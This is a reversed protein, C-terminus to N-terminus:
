RGYINGPAPIRVPLSITEGSLIRRSAGTHLTGFVHEAYLRGGGVGAVSAYNNGAALGRGAVAGYFDAPDRSAYGAASSALLAAGGRINAARNTKLEWEPIGTLRSAEGLTDSFPNQVLAMIGYSGWGHPAGREYENAEPPPMEWRTNVYGMAMLLETPIGYEEAATEFEAALSSGPSPQSQAFVKGVGVGGLVAVGLVGSCALKLFERRDFAGMIARPKAESSRGASRFVNAGETNPLQPNTLRIYRDNYPRTDAGTLPGGGRIEVEVIDAACCRAALLM